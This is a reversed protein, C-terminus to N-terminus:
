RREGGMWLLEEPTPVCQAWAKLFAGKDFKIEAFLKGTNEGTTEGALDVSIFEKPLPLMGCAELRKNDCTDRDPCDRCRAALTSLTM